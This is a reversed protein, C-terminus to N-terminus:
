MVVSIYELFFQLIQLGESVLLLLQHVLLFLFLLFCLFLLYLLMVLLSNWEENGTTFLHSVYECIQTHMELTKKLKTIQPTARQTYTATTRTRSKASRKLKKIREEGREREKKSSNIKKHITEYLCGM